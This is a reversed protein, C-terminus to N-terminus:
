DDEFVEDVTQELGCGSGKGEPDEPTSAFGSSRYM